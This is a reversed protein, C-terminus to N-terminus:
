FGIDLYSGDPEPRSSQRRRPLGFWRHEVVIFPESRKPVEKRQIHTEASSPSFCDPPAPKPAQKAGAPHSKM